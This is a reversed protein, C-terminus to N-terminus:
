FQAGVSVGLFGSSKESTGVTTKAIAVEGKIYPSSGFMMGANLGANKASGTFSNQTIPSGIDQSGKYSIKSTFFGGYVLMEDSLRYGSILAADVLTGTINYKYTVGNVVTGSVDEDDWKQHGLALTVALSFNGAKASSSPDGLIQFKARLAAPSKRTLELGIDLSDALSLSGMGGLNANSRILTPGATNAATSTSDDTLKVEHGGKLFIQADAKFRSGRTEPSEYRNALMNFSIVCGSFVLLSGVCLFLQLSKLIFRHM